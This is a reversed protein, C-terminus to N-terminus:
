RNGLKMEISRQISTSEGIFEKARREVAEELTGTKHTTVDKNMVEVKRKRVRDRGDISDVIGVLKDDLCVDYQSISNFHETKM